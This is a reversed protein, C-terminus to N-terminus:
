FKKRIYNTKKYNLLLIFTLDFKRINLYYGTLINNRGSSYIWEMTNILM